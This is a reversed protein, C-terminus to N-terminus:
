HDDHADEWGVCSGLMRELNAVKNNQMNLGTVLADIAADKEALKAEVVDVFIVDYEQCNDPHRANAKIWAACSQDKDTM